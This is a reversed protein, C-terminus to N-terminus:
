AVIANLISYVDVPRIVAPVNQCDAPACLFGEAKHTSLPRNDRDVAPANSTNHFEVGEAYIVLDPGGSEAEENGCVQVLAGFEGLLEQELYKRVSELLAARRNEEVAGDVFRSKLNLYVTGSVPSAALLGEPVFRNTRSVMRSPVTGGERERSVALAAAARAAMLPNDEGESVALQCFGGQCLLQNLNLRARCATHSFASVACVVTDDLRQTIESLSENLRELFEKIQPWFRLEQCSLADPGLIHAMLDFVSLRMFCKQWRSTSLLEAVCELRSLESRFCAKLSEDLDVLAITSSLFPRAKYADFPARGALDPPSVVQALPLSGDSLWLRGHGPLVLPLNAVVTDSGPVSSLLSLSFRLDSETVIRVDNLSAAPRAYGPCSLALWSRGSLIESWIAPANPLPSSDLTRVCSSRFMDDLWPLWASLAKAQQRALGDVAIVFLRSM